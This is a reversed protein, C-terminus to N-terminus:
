HMYFFCAFVAEGTVEVKGDYAKVPSVPMPEKGATLVVASAQVPIETNMTATQAIGFTVRVIPGDPLVKDKAPEKYRIDFEVVTTRGDDKTKQTTTILFGFADTFDSEVKKFTLLDSPFSLTLTMAGPLVGSASALYVPTSAEAGPVGATSSVTVGTPNEQTVGTAAALLLMSAVLGAARTSRAVM